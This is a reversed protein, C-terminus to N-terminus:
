RISHIKADNPLTLAFREADIGANLTLSRYRATGTV